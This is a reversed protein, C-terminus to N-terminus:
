RAEWSILLPLTKTRIDPRSALWLTFFRETLYDLARTTYATGGTADESKICLELEEFVTWWDNMFENFLALKCVFWHSTVHNIDWGWDVTSGNEMAFMFETWDESSRSRRFDTSLGGQAALDFSPTILMDYKNLLEEIQSGDQKYLWDQYEYFYEPGVVKWGPEDYDRFNFHKRYAQFGIIDPPYITGNRWVDYYCNMSAFRPGLPWEKQVVYQKVIGGAPRVPPKSEHFITWLEITM